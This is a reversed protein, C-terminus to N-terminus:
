GGSKPAGRIIFSKPWPSGQSFIEESTIFVHGGGVWIGLNDVKANSFQDYHIWENGDFHYIVGSWGVVFLNNAADGGVDLFTNQPDSFVTQWSGTTVRRMVSQYSPSYLQGGIVQVNVYFPTGAGDDLVSESVQWTVGDWELLHYYTRGTTDNHSLGGAILRGNLMGAFSEIWISDAVTYDEWVSGNFHHLGGNIGGVWMDSSSSGWMAYLNQANPPSVGHWKTGDYHMVFGQKIPQPPYTTDRYGAIWVDNSGFGFAAAPTFLLSEGPLAETYKISIDTWTLGDWHWIKGTV